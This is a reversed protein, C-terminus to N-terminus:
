GIDPNQEDFQRRARKLANLDMPVEKWSRGLIVDQICKVSTGYKEAFHECLDSLNKLRSERTERGDIGILEHEFFSVHAKINGVKAKDLKVKHVNRTNELRENFDDLYETDILDHMFALEVLMSVTAELNKLRRNVVNSM